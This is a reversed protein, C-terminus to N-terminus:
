PGEQVSLFELYPVGKSHEQAYHGMRVSVCCRLVKPELEKSAREFFWAPHKVPIGMSRGIPMVVRLGLTRGTPM